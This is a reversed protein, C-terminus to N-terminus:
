DLSILASHQGMVKTLFVVAHRAGKKLRLKSQLEEPTIPSGRKKVTVRGVDLQMLEARLRKLHFPMWGHIEWSRLWGSQVDGDGTLYAIDPDIRYADLKLHDLLEGFLGSRIVAPDPEYIFRRPGDVVPPADLGLSHLSEGDPLRTARFGEFAMEGCHFLAEKLDGDESVFEVGGGYGALESLDVGPSLKMLLAPVDHSLVADLPPLMAHVSFIRREDIRRAPDCFAADLGVLPLKQSIDAQILDPTREYAAANLHSMMLRLPDLDVGVVQGDLWILDGGIGCGLDAVRAFPRLIDAHHRAMVEGSAQQLGDDTFFMAAARTFKREGRQRLRATELLAAALSPDYTKRLHSLLSLTNAPRLDENALARLTDSHVVLATLLERTLM